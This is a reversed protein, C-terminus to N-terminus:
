DNSDSALPSLKVKSIGGATPFSSLPLSVSFLSSCTEIGGEVGGCEGDGGGTSSSCLLLFRGNEELVGILVGFELGFFFCL